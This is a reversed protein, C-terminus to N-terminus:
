EDAKSKKKSKTKNSKAISRHGHQSGDFPNDVLSESSYEEEIM